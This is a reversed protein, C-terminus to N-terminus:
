QGRGLIVVSITRLIISTDMKLWTRFTGLALAYSHDYGVKSRVDDISTDYGQEVQALGTIGPLVGYTRESYFPITQELKQYFEPREPRPGIVSMSGALVNFFQPIEDIRLKRMIKGVSTIRPDDHTAWTAGSYKEADDIMTRFKIIHFLDTRTPHSKGIRLQRFFVPGPSNIKILLAILPFFPLTLLLGATALTIDLVRKFQHTMKNSCHSGFTLTDNNVSMAEQTFGAATWRGKELGFLYRTTGILNSLHGSVLYALSASLKNPTPNPFYIQSFAIIYAVIQLGTLFLMYINSASLYLSGIFTFIMLFPMFVRLVKGSFFTFAVGGYSPILLHRLRWFQQLNGAAIRRRRTNEMSSDSKELELANIENEYEARYGKAVINMPLVFDDNITDPKLKTFLERRFLYLAGHAGLTSGLKSEQRKINSQYKWYTEEGKSGPNLLQYHSNIVGIEPDQFRHAAIRLADLSIIASVDSLAIIESNASLVLENIVAVKGRNRPYNCIDIKLHSCEIEQSTKNAIKYTFDNCGDCGILVHLKDSPYDLAAINRIKDAIWKEENYAPIVITVSPLSSDNYTNRYKDINQTEQTNNLYKEFLKLLIPYGIHHYVILFGSLLTLYLLITTNM